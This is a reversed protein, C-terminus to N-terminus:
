QYRLASAHTVAEADGASPHEPMQMPPGRNRDAPTGVPTPALRVAATRGPPPDTVPLRAIMAQLVVVLKRAARTLDEDTVSEPRAAVIGSRHRHGDIETSM